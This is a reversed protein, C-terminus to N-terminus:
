LDMDFFMDEITEDADSVSTDAFADRLLHPEEYTFMTRNSGEQRTTYSHLDATQTTTDEMKSSPFLYPSTTTTERFSGLRKIYIFEVPPAASLVDDKEQDFVKFHEDPRRSAELHQVDSSALPPQCRYDDCAENNDMM